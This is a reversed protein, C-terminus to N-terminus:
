HHTTPLCCPEEVKKEVLVAETKISVGSALSKRGFTADAGGETKQRKQALTAKTSTLKSHSFLQPQQHQRVAYRLLPSLSDSCM